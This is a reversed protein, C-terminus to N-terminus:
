EIFSNRDVIGKMFLATDYVAKKGVDLALNIVGEINLRKFLELAVPKCLPVIGARNEVHMDWEIYRKLAHSVLTNLVIGDQEAKEKIQRMIDSDM